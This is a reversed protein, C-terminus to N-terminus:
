ASPISFVSITNGEPQEDITRVYYLEATAVNVKFEGSCGVKYGLVTAAPADAGSTVYFPHKVSSTRIKIYDVGASTVAVWGDEPRIQFNETAM